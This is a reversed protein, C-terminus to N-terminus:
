STGGTLIYVALHTLYFGGFLVIVAIAIRM